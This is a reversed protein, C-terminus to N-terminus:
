NKAKKTLKGVHELLWDTFHKTQDGLFAELEEKIESPTKKASVVCVVYESLMDKTSEDSPLGDTSELKKAVDNQLTRAEEETLDPTPGAEGSEPLIEAPKQKKGEEGTDVGAAPPLRQSASDIDRAAAESTGTRSASVRPSIPGALGQRSVGPLFVSLFEEEGNKLLYADPASPFRIRTKGGKAMIEDLLRTPDRILNGGIQLVLPAVEVENDSRQIKRPYSSHNYLSRLLGSLADNPPNEVSIENDSIDIDQLADQNHWVYETIAEVGRQRIKNGPLRLRQLRVDLRKLQDMVACISDDSLDNRSLDFSHLRWPQGTARPDGQNRFFWCHLCAQFDAVHKDLCMRDPLGIERGGEGSRIAMKEFARYAEPKETAFDRPESVPAAGM